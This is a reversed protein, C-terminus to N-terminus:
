QEQSQVFKELLPVFTIEYEPMFKEITKPYQDGYKSFLSEVQKAYYLAKEDNSNHIFHLTVYDAVSLASSFQRENYGAYSLVWDGAMVLNEEDGLQYYAYACTTYVSTCYSVDSEHPKVSMDENYAPLDFDRLIAAGAKIIQAPESFPDCYMLIGWAIDANDPYYSSYYLAKERAFAEGRQENCAALFESYIAGTFNEQMHKELVDLSSANTEAYASFVALMLLAMLAAIVKRRENRLM